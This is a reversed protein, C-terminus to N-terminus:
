LVHRQNASLSVSLRTVFSRAEYAFLPWFSYSAAADNVGSSMM